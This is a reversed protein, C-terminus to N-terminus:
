RLVKPVHQVLLDVHRIHLGFIQVLQTISDRWYPGFERIFAELVKYCRNPWLYIFPVFLVHLLYFLQLIVLTVVTLQRTSCYTILKIALPRFALRGSRTKAAIIGEFHVMPNLNHPQPNTKACNPFSVVCKLRTFFLCDHDSVRRTIFACFGSYLDHQYM